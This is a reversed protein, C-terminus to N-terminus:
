RECWEVVQLVSAVFLPGPITLTFAVGVILVAPIGALVNHIRM